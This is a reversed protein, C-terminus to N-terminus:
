LIARSYRFSCASHSVPDFTQLLQELLREEDRVGDVDEVQGAEVARVGREEDLRAAHPEEGVEAVDLRRLRDLADLRHLRARDSIVQSASSSSPRM